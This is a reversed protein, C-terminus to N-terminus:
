PGEGVFVKRMTVVNRGDRYVYEVEDMLKRVLHIGLGGPLRDELNSTTDAGGVDELPNFPTGDDSVEVELRASDFWALVTAETAASYSAVNVLIEDLAVQLPQVADDPIGQEEAFRAFRENLLSVDEIIQESLEGKTPLTLSFQPVMRAALYQLTLVTVDDSRDGEEWALVEDVLKETITV